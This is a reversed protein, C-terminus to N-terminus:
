RTRVVGKGDVVEFSFEFDVYIAVASQEWHTLDPKGDRDLDPGPTPKQRFAPAFKWDKVAAQVAARFAMHCQDDPLPRSPVDRQAAVNGDTGIHVRVPVRGDRCGAKLAYVPYVPLQNDYSALAATITGETPVVEASPSPPNLVRVSTRGEPDVPAAPAVPQQRASCALAVWIALGAPAAAGKRM